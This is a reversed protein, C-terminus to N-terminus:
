YFIGDRSVTSDVMTVTPNQLTSDRSVTSEVMTVTPNQLTSDPTYPFCTLGLQRVCGIASEPPIVEPLISAEELALGVMVDEFIHEDRLLEINDCWRNAVVEAALKSVMYQAGQLYPVYQGDYDNSSWKNMTDQFDYKRHWGRANGVGNGLVKYGGYHSDVHLKPAEPRLKVDSDVKVMHSINVFEPLTTFAKMTLAVKEPLGFYNDNCCLKLHRGDLQFTGLPGIHGGTVLYAYDFQVIEINAPCNEHSIVFVVVSQDIRPNQYNELIASGNPYFQSSQM